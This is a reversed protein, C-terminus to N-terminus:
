ETKPLVVTLAPIQIMTAISSGYLEVTVKFWKYTNGDAFSFDAATTSTMNASGVSAWTAGDDNSGYVTVVGAEGLNQIKANLIIGNAAETSKIIVYSTGVPTPDNIYLRIHSKVFAEHTELTTTENLTVTHNGKGLNPNITAFNFVVKEGVLEVPKNDDESGGEDGGNGGGEGPELFWAPFQTVGIVSPDSLFDAKSASMTTYTVGDKSNTYTGITWEVGNVTTTLYKHETNMTYITPNQAGATKFVVHVKTNDSERPLIDMFKMTEGDLYYISYGSGNKILYMDKAEAANTTTLGYKEDVEGTLYYNDDGLPTPFMGFKYAKGEEPADVFTYGDAATVNGSNGGESGGEPPTTGTCVTINMMRVQYAFAPITFSDVAEHLDVTVFTEHRSVVIGTVGALSKVLDAAYDKDAYTGVEFVIRTMGPYEVVLNTGQYFRVPNATDTIASSSAGLNNTVTIGNQQWVQQEGTQSVRNAKDAFSISPSGDPIEPPTTTSGSGSGSGGGTSPNGGTASTYLHTVYSTAVKDQATTGITVYNDYTGMYYVSGDVTTYLSANATDFVFVSKAGTDFTFNIHSGNALIAVYRKTTGEMFYLYYGGDANELYVDVGQAYDTETGGYYTASMAGTFYYTAGKVTQDLGLKYAKGVEPTKTFTGYASTTTGGQDGSGGGTNGGGEPPTTGTCATIELIRIQNVLAPVTFSDVAEHLDVTVYRDQHTLVINTVSALSAILQDAYDAKYSDMYFVIRTMGPYEVTVTSGKYFRAPNTYQGNVNSSSEAKDNTVTVGNERWVQQETSVSVRNAADNLHIVASGEPIEPESGEGAIREILVSGQDFQVKGNYNVISGYVTITDGVKLNAVDVAGKALRYCQIPKSEYGPVKMTVTINKYQSSYAEDVSSIVGTLTYSGELSSGSSLAYAANLIQEATMNDGPNVGKVLKQLTCGNGMQVEGQYNEMVGRVTITDGVRVESADAKGSKMRYCYLVTGDSLEIDVSVNGYSPDYWTVIKKVVGTLNAFYDLKEGSALEAADALIAAQDDTEPKAVGGGSVRKVLTSGTGFQIDGQYNEIVGRVTITDDVCVLSADAAGSKMRYCLMQTGDSLEMYVSINGYEKDYPSDIKIVKGTLNAFYTLKEGSALKAADALIAAQDSSEPKAVGGGSVRKVLTSGSGFQPAGKYNEIVGRVTITDGVCVKSADAAGSKLRYCLMANGEVEIYVSINDYEKDYPTDLATVKGTLTAYYSLKEGEALKAADALIQKADTSEPKAVGGGSVRKELTAGSGFQVSGKYNEIVGRVTITDKVAIKSADAAGSKLRYCLMSTGDSLEIYVSINGYEKDYPTDLVTVKGTLTAYYSLKEGEALKAADALITKQDSTEPKATGGGSVRKELTAGSGFQISGKYNEIVGRVTITDGVCVKSVDYAGSKLRYCLMETGDSLKIYVSMNGYNKDYPSDIEIVKGTLNAYYSLKQGEALKAADALIQKQNSSEPKAVGGGSIRNELTSGTGFQIDGKYNEIVGRVTITDGVCVKSVDYAGSKLRYCLMRTGDSLKIYVSMNGYNKDYPSDIEVVKGTLNAFYSLKQGSSLKAADALIEKQNSSEPKAVGGGSIRDQLTCGTGFELSGKYNEIVGRVSITDGVAIKSVDANGSKMRYCIIPYNEYGEVRMIVSINGYNKDYPSDIEIVKGTLNAYYDLKQGSYLKKADAMIADKDFSEPKATRGGSIREVLICGTDFEITGKYNKIIGTVTIIDDRAILDADTGKLRYCLVPYKEYGEAVMIVSINGYNADYPSDIETVKGTLTVPYPLAQGSSLAYAAKLIEGVDTPPQIADGQEVAMLMCGSDFEITGNYNKITGTVTIINGVLLGECGDGKMRYCQIPMDEAGEVVITVTINQYEPNYVSDISIIKGRLTVEYPLSEGPALAYAAKVIEIMDGISPLIMDWSHTATGGYEDTITATLTYPTAVECAENVDITVNGDEKVVVKVLDEGVDVTWVVTFPVGAIRVIGYRDYNVPTKTPEDADPYMARLYEMADEATPGEPTVVSPDTSPTTEPEDQNRKCGAFMGLVLVFLLVWALVKKM